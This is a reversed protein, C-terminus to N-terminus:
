NFALNLQDSWEAEFLCKCIFMPFDMEAQLLPRGGNAAASCLKRVHNLFMRLNFEVTGPEGRDQNVWNQAQVAVLTSETLQRLTDESESTQRRVKHPPPEEARHEKKAAPIPTPPVAVSAPAPLDSPQASASVSAPADLM